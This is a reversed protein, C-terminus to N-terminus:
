CHMILILPPVMLRSAEVAAAMRTVGAQYMDFPLYRCAGSRVPTNIHAVVVARQRPRLSHLVDHDDCRNEEGCQEDAPAQPTDPAM